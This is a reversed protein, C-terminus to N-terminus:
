EAETGPSEAPDTTALTPSETCVSDLAESPLWLSDVRLLAPGVNVILMMMM